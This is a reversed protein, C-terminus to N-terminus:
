LPKVHANNLFDFVIQSWTEMQEYYVACEELTLLEGSKLEEKVRIASSNGQLLFVLGVHVQGVPNSDDNIMGLPEVTYSSAYSVEEQFERQAWTMINDDTMDEARIHGGIGLSYKNKLRTESAKAQRQMLFFRHQHQFVLYPIIQKYNPDNEMISRPLFEKKESILQAYRHYDIQHMGHWAGHPFLHSRKVVLILEDHAQPQPASATQLTMSAKRNQFM